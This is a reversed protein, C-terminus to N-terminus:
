EACRGIAEALARLAKAMGQAAAQDERGRAKLLMGRMKNALDKGQDFLVEFQAM